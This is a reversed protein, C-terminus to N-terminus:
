NCLNLFSQVSIVFVKMEKRVVECTHAKLCASHWRKIILSNYVRLKVNILLRPVVIILSLLLVILDM